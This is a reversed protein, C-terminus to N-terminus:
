GLGKRVADPSVEFPLFQQFPIRLVAIQGAVLQLGPRHTLQKTGRDGRCSSRRQEGEQM